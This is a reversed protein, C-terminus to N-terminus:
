LEQASRVGLDQRVQDRLHPDFVEEMEFIFACTDTKAQDIAAERSDAQVKRDYETSTSRDFLVVRYDAM